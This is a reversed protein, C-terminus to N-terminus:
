DHFDEDPINKKYWELKNLLNKKMNRPILKGDLVTEVECEPCRIAQYPISETYGGGYVIFIDEKGYELEAGCGGDGMDKGTCKAVASWKKGKKLVKM